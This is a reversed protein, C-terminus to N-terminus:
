LTNVPAVDGNDPPSLLPVLASNAWNWPSLLREFPGIARWGCASPVIHTLRDASGHSAPANKMHDYTSLTRYM